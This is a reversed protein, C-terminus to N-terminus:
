LTRGSPPSPELLLASLLGRDHFGYFIGLPALTPAATHVKVWLRPRTQASPAAEPAMPSGGEVKSCLSGCMRCSGGLHAAEVYAEWSETWCGLEPRQPFAAPAPVPFGHGRRRPKRRRNRGRRTSRWVPLAVGSWSARTELNGLSRGTPGPGPHPRGRSWDGHSGPLKRHYGHPPLPRESPLVLTKRVAVPAARGVGRVRSPSM